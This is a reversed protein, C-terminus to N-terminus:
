SQSLVGCCVCILLMFGLFIGSFIKLGLILPKKFQGQVLEFPNTPQETFRQSQVLPEMPKTAGGFTPVRRQTPVNTLTPPAYKQLNVPRQKFRHQARDQQPLPKTPEPLSPTPPQKATPAQTSSKHPQNAPKDSKTKPRTVKQLNPKPKPEPKLKARRTTPTSDPEPKPRETRSPAEAQHANEKQPETPKSTVPVTSPTSADPISTRSAPTPRKEPPPATATPALDIALLKFHKYASDWDYLSVTLSIKDSPSWNSAQENLKTPLLIKVESNVDAITGLIAYGDRYGDERVYSYNRDVERATVTATFVSDESLAEIKRRRDYSSDISDLEQLAPTIDTAM